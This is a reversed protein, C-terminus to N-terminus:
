ADKEIDIGSSSFYNGSPSTLSKLWLSPLESGMDDEFVVYFQVETGRTLGVLASDNLQSHSIRSFLTIPLNRQPDSDMLQLSAKM